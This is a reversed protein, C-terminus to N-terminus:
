SQERREALDRKARGGREGSEIEMLAVEPHHLDFAPSESRV